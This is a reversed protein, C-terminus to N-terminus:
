SEVQSIPRWCVRQRSKKLVYAGHLHGDIRSKPTGIAADGLPKQLLVVDRKSVNINLGRGAGGFFDDFAGAFAGDRLEDNVALPDLGITEAM